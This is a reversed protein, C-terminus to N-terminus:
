VDAQGESLQKRLIVSLRRKLCTRAVSLQIVIFKMFQVVFLLLFFDDCLSLCLVLLASFLCSCISHCFPVCQRRGQLHEKQGRKVKM